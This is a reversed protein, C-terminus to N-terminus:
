QLFIMEEKTGWMICDHPLSPTPANKTKDKGDFLEELDM